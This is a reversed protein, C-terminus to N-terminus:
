KLLTLRCKNLHLPTVMIKCKEYCLELVIIMMMCLMKLIFEGLVAEYMGTDHCTNSKFLDGFKLLEPM